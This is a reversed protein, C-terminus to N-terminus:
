CNSRIKDFFVDAIETEALSLNELTDNESLNDSYYLKNSEQNNNNTCSSYVPNNYIKMNKEMGESQDM